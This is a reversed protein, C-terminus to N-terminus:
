LLEEEFEYYYKMKLCRECGVVDGNRNIYFFESDEGCIPCHPEILEKGDPYGTRLLNQIVPHDPIDFM